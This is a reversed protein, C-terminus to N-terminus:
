DKFNTHLWRGPTSPSRHVALYGKQAIPDSISIGQVVLCASSCAPSSTKTLDDKGFIVIDGEASTGADASTLLVLLFALSAGCISQPKNKFSNTQIMVDLM